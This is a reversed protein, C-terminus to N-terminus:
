NGLTATPDFNSKRWEIKINGSLVGAPKNGDRLPVVFESEHKLADPDDPLHKSLELQGNCLRDNRGAVDWDMVALLLTEQALRQVSNVNPRLVPVDGDSWVPELTSHQVGTEKPTPLCTSGFIVYPDSSKVDGIPINNGKLNTITITCEGRAYDFGLVKTRTPVDFVAYVPKHDSSLISPVGDYEKLEIKHDPMSWWLVRDCWAPSRKAIYADVQNREVKFTPAFNIPGESFGDFVEGNERQHTLQDHEFLRDFQKEKVLEVMEDFQEKSPSHDDGQDGYDLRYNLDGMWVVHNFQHMFDMSPEGVQVGKIIEMVDNNRRVTKDQHAALHSNLFCISTDRIHLGVAVGGKNGLVNAIGTAETHQTVNGMDDSISKRCFIVLRMEWLANYKVLQYNEGMHKTLHAVWDDKCSSHPSRAKYECEQSGIVYVDYENPKLWDNLDDQPAANGVNWTGVFLSIAEAQSKKEDAAIIASEHQSVDDEVTLPAFKQLMARRHKEMAMPGVGLVVNPDKVIQAYISGEVKNIMDKDYLPFWGSICDIDKLPALSIKCRGLFDDYWFDKDM